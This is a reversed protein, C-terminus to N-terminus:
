DDNELLLIWQFGWKGHKKRPSSLSVRWRKGTFGMFDGSKGCKKPNDGVEGLRRTALNADFFPLSVRNAVFISALASTTLPLVSNPLALVQRSSRPEPRPLSRAYSFWLFIIPFHHNFPTQHYSITTKHSISVSSMDSIYVSSM